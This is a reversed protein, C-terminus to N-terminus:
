DPLNQRGTLEGAIVSVYQEIRETLLKGLEAGPQVAQPEIGYIVIEKPCQGLSKAMDIIKLLDAEHLSQHAPIKVSRVQGPTFRRITGPETGMRACDIIVAKRCGEIHYLLSIGGTGADIFAVGSFRGAQQALKQVLCVGIGEDSMLPNGLGLVVTDNKM